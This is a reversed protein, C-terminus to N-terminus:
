HHFVWGCKIPAHVGLELKYKQLYFFVWGNKSPHKKIRRKELANRAAAGRGCFGFYYDVREHRYPGLEEM